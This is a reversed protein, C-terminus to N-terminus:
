VYPPTHICQKHIASDDGRDRKPAQQTSDRAMSYCASIMGDDAFSRLRLFFVDLYSPLLIGCAHVRARMARLQARHLFLRMYIYVKYLYTLRLVLTM